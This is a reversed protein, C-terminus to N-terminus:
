GADFLRPADVDPRAATRKTKGWMGWMKLLSPVVDFGSFPQPNRLEECRSWTVPGNHRKRRVFQWVVGARTEKLFGELQQTLPLVKQKWCRFSSSFALCPLYHALRVPSPCWPCDEHTCPVTRRQDSLWHLAHKRDFSVDSAVIVYIPVDQVYQLVQFTEPRPDSDFRIPM